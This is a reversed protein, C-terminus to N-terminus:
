FFVYSLILSYASVYSLSLPIRSLNHYWNMTTSSVAYLYGVSNLAMGVRGGMAAAMVVDDGVNM